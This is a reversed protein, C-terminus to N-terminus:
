DQLMVDVKEVFEKATNKLQELKENDVETETGYRYYERMNLVTEDHEGSSEQIDQLEELSISVKQEVILKEVVAFTCAQNRSEYGFKSLIALLSHYMSYFIVSVAWDSYGINVLETVLRLNRKAKGLHERVNGDDLGIKGLGKHKRGEKEAKRLCWDIKKEVQM